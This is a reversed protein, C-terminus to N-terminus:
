EPAPYTIQLSCNSASADSFSAGGVADCIAWFNTLDWMGGISWRPDPADMILTSGHTLRIGRTTSVDNNGIWMISSAHNIYPQFEVTSAYLNVISGWHAVTVQVRTTGISPSTFTRTTMQAAWATTTFLLAAITLIVVRKIKM